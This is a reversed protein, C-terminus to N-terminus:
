VSKGSGPAGLIMLRKNTEFAKMADITSVTRAAAHVSLPVFVKGLDLPERRFPISLRRHKARVDSRHHQLARRQAFGAGAFRRLVHSILADWLRAASAKIADRFLFAIALIAALVWGGHSAILHLLDANLANKRIEYASEYISGIERPVLG